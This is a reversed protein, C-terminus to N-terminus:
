VFTECIKNLLLVRNKEAIDHSKQIFRKDIDERHWMDLDMPLIHPTEFMTELDEGLRRMICDENEHCKSLILSRNEGVCLNRMREARQQRATEFSTSAQVFIFYVPSNDTNWVDIINGLTTFHEEDRYMGYGPTDVINLIYQKGNYDYIMKEHDMRTTVQSMSVASKFRDKKLLLNCLASIGHGSHGVCIINIQKM